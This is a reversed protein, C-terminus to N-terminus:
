LHAALWTELDKLVMAKETENLVEHYLGPYIKLTKDASSAKDYLMQAGSPEVLKDESGQLVIFPLTIRNLETAMRQMRNLSEAAIRAPTKAHFVLPDKAYANVVAPDRSITTVDLMQLGMKPALSSLINAMMITAKTISSGPKVTPASFIAGRFDDQHDFLYYITILVGLSHGLIFVPKGPQWGQIMKYYTELPATLDEFREIIETVGGETKGHGIHDLGYVAYGLPVFYNVVNMYRGSHEGLGHVVLLVAKVEGSPLWGQYYINKDRVSKFNGEIHEM